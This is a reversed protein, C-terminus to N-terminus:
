RRKKNITTVDIVGAEHGPGFNQVARNQDLYRIETVDAAKVTVLSSELDPQRMGDIYGVVQTAARTDGGMDTSAMRGRPPALWWPRLLRIADAATAVNGAGTIEEPTLKNRDGRPRRTAARATTDQQAELSPAVAALAAIVSGSLLATRLFSRM